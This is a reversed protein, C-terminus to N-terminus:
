KDLAPKRDFSDIQSLGGNLFLFIVHKAKGPFHPTKPAWPSTEASVIGLPLSGALGAMGFGAGLRLLAERRSSLNVM